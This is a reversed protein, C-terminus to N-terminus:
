QEQWAVHSGHLVEITARSLNTKSTKLSIWFSSNVSPTLVSLQDPQDTWLDTKVSLKNKSSWDKHRKKTENQWSNQVSFYYYGAILTRKESLFDVKACEREGAGFFFLAQDCTLYHDQYSRLFSHLFTNATQLLFKCNESHRYLSEQQIELAIWIPWINEHVVFVKGRRENAAATKHM